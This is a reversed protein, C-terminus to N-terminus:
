RPKYGAKNKKMTGIVGWYTNKTLNDTIERGMRIYIGCSPSQISEKLSYELHRFCNKAYLPYITFIYYISWINSGYLLYKTYLNESTIM